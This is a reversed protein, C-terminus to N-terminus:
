HARLQQVMEGAGLNKNKIIYSPTPPYTCIYIHAYLHGRLRSFPTLDGPDPTALSKSGGSTSASFLEFVVCSCYMHEVELGDRWGLRTSTIGLEEWNRRM